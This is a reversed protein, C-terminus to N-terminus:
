GGPNSTHERRWAAPTTGHAKRFQRIFHTADKWGVAHAIELISDSTHVLRSAAEALRASTIWDGVTHGTQQKVTAAVHSPAHSVAAAVDRLSIPRLAEQQIFALADPVFGTSTERPGAVPMARLVEAFLLQLMCRLLEKSEPQELRQEEAMDRYLRVVRRRRGRPLKVLPLAGLRVRRFPAMTPQTEELSFCAACFRVAWLELDHGGLPEHPIGSPLLLVCGPQATVAEGLNMVFSGRAVYTVVHDTHSFPAHHPLEPLQRHSVALPGPHAHM